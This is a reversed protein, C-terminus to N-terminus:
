GSPRCASAGQRLARAEVQQGRHHAAALALVALLDGLPLPGAELPQLDVALEIGISSAGARSLFNLCSMSTTTSRSTVLAPGPSRAVGVAQLGASRRASPMATASHASLSGVALVLRLPQQEGLLEGARDGAERDALDLRPQEREVVGVAGARDAVAQARLEGEVGVQDHRVLVLGQVLARDRGPGLAGRREVGLGQLRQRPVVAERHVLGPQFSGSSALCTIRCPEPPSFIRKM